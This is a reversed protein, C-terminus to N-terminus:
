CSDCHKLGFSSLVQDFNPKDREYADVPSRLYVSYEVDGAKGRLAEVFDEVMLRSSERDRYRVVVRKADIGGIRIDSRQLVSVSGAVSRERIWDLRKDVADQLTPEDLEAAFGAYAEIWHDTDNQGESLPIIRGHDSMCICGDNGAVCRASNWTGKLGAPIVISFGYSSNVYTSNTNVTDPCPQQAASQPQADSHPAIVLLLALTIWASVSVFSKM